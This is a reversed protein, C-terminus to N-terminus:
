SPTTHRRYYRAQRVSHACTDHCFRRARHRTVFLMPCAPRACRRVRCADEGGLFLICRCAIAALFVDHLDGEHHLQWTPVGDLTLALHGAARRAQQHLLEAADARTARRDDAAGTLLLRSADRIGRVAAAVEPLLPDPVVLDAAAPAHAFWAAIDEPAALFDRREHGTRHDSNALEVAFAEGLLPLGDSM